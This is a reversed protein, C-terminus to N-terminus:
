DTRENDCDDSFIPHPCVEPIVRDVYKTKEAM